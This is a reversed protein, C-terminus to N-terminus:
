ICLVLSKKVYVRLDCFQCFKLMDFKSEKFDLVCSFVVIERFVTMKWPVQVWGQTRLLLSVGCAKGLDSSGASGPHCCYASRGDVRLPQLGRGTAM